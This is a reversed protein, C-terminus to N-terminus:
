ATRVSEAATEGSAVEDGAVETNIDFAVDIGAVCATVTVGNFVRVAVQDIAERHFQAAVADGRVDEATAAIDQSMRSAAFAMGTKTDLVADGLSDAKEGIATVRKRM